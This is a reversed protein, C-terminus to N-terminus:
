REPGTRTAEWHVTSVGVDLARSIAANEDTIDLGSSGGRGDCGGLPAFILVIALIFRRPKRM